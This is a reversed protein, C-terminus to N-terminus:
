QDTRPLRSSFMDRVVKWAGDPQRQWVELFQGEDHVPAPSGPPTADLAFSGRVWVVDGMGEVDLQRSEFHAIPPFQRLWETIAARGTVPGGYPPLLMADDSYYLAAYPGAWDGGARVIAIASDAVARIAARDAAALGAPAPQQCASLAALLTIPLLPRRAM